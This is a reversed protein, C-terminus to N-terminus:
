RRGEAIVRVAAALDVAVFDPRQGDV